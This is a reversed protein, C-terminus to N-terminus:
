QVGQRAFWGLSLCYTAATEWRLINRGLTVPIFGGQILREAESDDLGGEPGIVLLTRGTALQAPVLPAAVTDSEWALYWADFGRAFDLLGEVGDPLAAIAPVHATGCQKAAQICKDRWSEKADDPMQGQSRLAAWFVTGLGGLEVLKEFFYDRRKSKSWGIALTLGIEPAPHSELSVAELLASNRDTERVVFLGSRGDGDFLRVTQDPVTRLVTLMHRAETGTLRVTGGVGGPWATAPLHFSNLRAM